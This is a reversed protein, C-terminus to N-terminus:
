LFDAEHLLPRSSFQVALLTYRTAESRRCCSVGGCVLCRAAVSQPARPDSRAGARRRVFADHVLPGRRQRVDSFLRVRLLILGAAPRWRTAGRASRVRLRVGLPRAALRARQERARLARVSARDCRRVRAGGM